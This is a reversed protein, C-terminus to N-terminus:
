GDIDGPLLERAGVHALHDRRGELRAVDGAASEADLHGLAGEHLPPKRGLRERPQRVQVHLKMEVVEPGAVRGEAVQVLELHVVQLDVSRVKTWLMIASAVLRDMTWLMM